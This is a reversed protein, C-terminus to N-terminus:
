RSARRSTVSAVFIAAFVVGTVGTLLALNTLKGPGPFLVSVTPDGPAHRITVQTGPAHRAVLATADELSSLEPGGDFGTTNGEYTKGDVEFRYTVALRYVTGQRIWRSVPACSTMVARAQPWSSSAYANLVGRPGGAAFLVVVVVALVVLALATAVLVGLPQQGPV